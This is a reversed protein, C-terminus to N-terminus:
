RRVLYRLALGLMTVVYLPLWFLTMLRDALTVNVTARSQSQLHWFWPIGVVWILGLLLLTASLLM